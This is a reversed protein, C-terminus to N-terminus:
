RMYDMFSLRSMRATVAYLTELQTYAAELAAATEYPDASVLEARSLELASKEAGNRAAVDDIRAQVSGLMGREAVLADGSAVLNEGAKAMLGEREAPDAGLVGEAVLAAKALASLTDRLAAGDARVPITATEGSGLPIPGMPDTSGLYGVTEFGGGPADFWADVADSVGTATTQAAVAATLASLMTDPSALAVRDTAAGGFIGRGAAHTNLSRVVASFRERADNAEIEITAGSQNGQLSLIADRMDQASTQVFDLTAQAQDTLTRAEAVATNRAGMTTLQREIRTIPGFDGSVARSWDARTGTTLEQSLRATETKLRGTQVQSQFARAMDGISVISM